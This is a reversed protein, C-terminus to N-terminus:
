EKAASFLNAIMKYPHRFLAENKLEPRETVERGVWIPLRFEEDKSSLEIEAIVLGSNEGEFEDVDWLRGEHFIQHRRKRIITGQTCLSLLEHGIAPPIDCTIEETTTSDLRFKHTLTCADDEFRVRLENKTATAFYGQLILKSGPSRPFDGEVLFKREIELYKGLNDAVLPDKATDNTNYSSTIRTVRLCQGVIMFSLVTEPFGDVSVKANIPMALNNKGTQSPGQANNCFESRRPIVNHIWAILRNDHCGGVRGSGCSSSAPCPSPRAQAIKEFAAM